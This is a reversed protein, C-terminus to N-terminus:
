MLVIAPARWRLFLPVGYTLMGQTTVMVTWLVFSPAFGCQFPLTTAYTLPFLALGALVAARWTEDAFAVLPLVPLLYWANSVGLFFVFFGFLAPAAHALPKGDGRARMAMWATWAVGAFRVAVGLGFSADHAGAAYLLTRPIAEPAHVSMLLPHGADFLTTLRGLRPAALAAALLALALTAATAARASGLRRAHLWAALGGAVLVATVVGGAPKVLPAVVLLAAALLPRGCAYRDIAAAVVLAILADNHGASTAELIAIPSLAVTAFAVPQAGARMRAVASATLAAAGLVSACALLRHLLLHLSLADGAVSGVARCLLHFLPGYASSGDRWDPPLARWLPDDAQMTQALSTYPDGHYHALVRDIAAYFLGDRSTFVPHLLMTAHPPLSALVVDRTRMGPAAAARVGLWWALALVAAALGAVEAAGFAHPQPADCRWRAIDYVRAPWAFAIAALTALTGALFLRRRATVCANYPTRCSLLIQLM